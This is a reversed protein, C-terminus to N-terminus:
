VDVWIRKELVTIVVEVRKKVKVPPATQAGAGASSGLYETLVVTGFGQMGCATEGRFWSSM